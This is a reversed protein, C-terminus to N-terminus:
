AQPWVPQAVALEDPRLPEIRRLQGELVSEDAESPDGGHAARERLRQRMLSLDAGAVFDLIGFPVQREAALQQMALRETRRLFTADVIVAHGDKLLQRALVALRQYTASNAADGYRAENALGPCRKREVDSRLRVAGTDQLLQQTVTSKGSGSCGHTILLRPSQPLTLRLAVDLYRRAVGMPAEQRGQQEARLMSVKARVLARHVLLYDLVPLGDHDGSAEIYGNVWRHALPALGHAQLDMAMFALDAMVDTWRLAPSFDIGDFVTTKGEFLTVNGLHLDGHCERVRGRARREVLRQETRAFAEEEWTRLHHLEQATTLGSPVGPELELLNQLVTHRLGDATGFPSAPDARECQDHFPVLLGLLSDVDAETLEGREARREWLGGQDFSRMRVAHDLLPGAGDLVPASANGTVAVVAEYLTPALRRNLRLEEECAQRRRERTSQDLFATSLAKKVKYAQAGAVLVWSIHTEILTAQLAVRLARVMEAQAEADLELAPAAAPAPKNTM